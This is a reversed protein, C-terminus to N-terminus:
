PAVYSVRYLAGAYDDSVLLSGDKMVAVDVPRGIYTDIGGVRKLWGEAFVEAKGAKGDAQIPVFNLLAGSPPHRDWSGHSAVFIGGRYQTPFMTGNYFTMGLQAQHAPFEVEPFIAEKPEALGKLDRAATSGAVKVHGGWYPYGFDQGMKTLRNLEGPPIDNGLSDTQNDTFWLIGDKPNFDLGVSNRVGTAIVERGSGDMNMRVIGGIGLKKFTDVKDAPPVNYPQGLTIYLKGDKGVRCARAGHNTAEYSPPILKGRSLINLVPVDPKEYISEAAPFGLVRNSEVVVLTGTATWCVGHPNKFNIHPAFSKVEASSNNHDSVAWVHHTRTGVFLLKGSPAIALHRADPVLAYLEIKFGAPLTINKLNARIADANKGTQEVVTAGSNIISGQRQQIRETSVDAISVRSQCIFLAFSIFIALHLPNLFFRRIFQMYAFLCGNTALSIASNLRLQHLTKSKMVGASNPLFPKINM